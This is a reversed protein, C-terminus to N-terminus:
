NIEIIEFFLILLFCKNLIESLYVIHSEVNFRNSVHDM